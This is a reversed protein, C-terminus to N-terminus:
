NYLIRFNVELHTPIMIMVKYKVHDLFGNQIWCLYPLENQKGSLNIYTNKPQTRM